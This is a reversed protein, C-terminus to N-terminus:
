GPEGRRTLRAIIRWLSASLALHPATPLREPPSAQAAADPSIVGVEILGDTFYADGGGNRGNLTPRSGAIRYAQLLRRAASLDSILLDREQDLDPAIHHTVQGTTHSLGVGRDFSAAGLWVPRGAAGRALVEWFRVHHRRDASDGAPKEFALDERRGDYFLPSVPAARYPRDLLVSGAIELSTRLTVPDAAFWGAAHMARVLEARSGILGVNLPDGPIGEATRTLMPRSALGPEREYRTWLAPVVLYAALIYLGAAAALVTAALRWFHPRPDPM